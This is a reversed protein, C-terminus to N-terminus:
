GQKWHTEPYPLLAKAAEIREGLPVSTNNMTAWLFQAPGLWDSPTVAADRGSSGEPNLQELVFDMQAHTMPSLRSLIEAQQDRVPPVDVWPEDGFVAALDRTVFASWHDIGSTCAPVATYLGHGHAGSPKSSPYWSVRDEPLGELFRDRLAMLFRECTSSSAPQSLSFWLQIGDRGNVAIGPAPLGWESVFAHWLVALSSWESPKSLQLILVRSGDQSGGTAESYAQPGYLRELEGCLRDQVVQGALSHMLLTAWPCAQAQM